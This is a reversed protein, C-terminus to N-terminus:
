QQSSEMKMKKRYSYRWIYYIAWAILPLLQVIPNYNNQMNFIWVLGAIFFPGMIYIAMRVEKNKFSCDFRGAM